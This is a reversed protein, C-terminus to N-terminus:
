TFIGMLTSFLAVIIILVLIFLIIYMKKRSKKQQDVAKGLQEAGRGTDLVAANVNEEIHGLMEGESNVIIAMDVFLKNLEKISQEIAVIDNHRDKVYALANKSQTTLQASDLTSQVFLKEVQGTEIAREIQPETAEPKVIKVKQVMKAKVKAAYEEQAQQYQRLADAFKSSLSAALNQKMTHEEADAQRKLTDIQGKVKHIQSNTEDTLKQIEQTIKNTQEPTLAFLAQKYQAQLAKVNNKLGAIGGKIGEAEQLIDAM